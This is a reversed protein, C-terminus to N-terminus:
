IPSNTDPLFDDAFPDYNAPLTSEAPTPAPSSSSVPPVPKQYPAANQSNRNNDAFGWSVDRLVTKSYRKGNHEWEETKLKGEVMVQDGKHHYKLFTDASAGFVTCEIFFTDEVMQGKSKYKDNIAISFKAISTGEPTARYEPEATLRGIGIFKNLNM